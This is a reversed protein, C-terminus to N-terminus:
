CIHRDLRQPRRGWRCIRRGRIHHKLAAMPRRTKIQNLMDEFERLITIDRYIRVLDADAFEARAQSVTKDYANVPIDTFSIKGAASLEAPNINISKPM